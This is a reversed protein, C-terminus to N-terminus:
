ESFTLNHRNDLNRNDSFISVEHEAQFSSYQTEKSIPNKYIYEEMDKKNPKIDELLEPGVDTFVCQKGFDMRKKTYVFTIDM